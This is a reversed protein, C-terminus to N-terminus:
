QEGTCENDVYDTIAVMAASLQSENRLAMLTLQIMMLFAMVVILIVIVDIFSVGDNDM